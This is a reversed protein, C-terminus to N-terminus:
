KSCGAWCGQEAREKNKEELSTIAMNFGFLTDAINNFKPVTGAGITRLFNGLEQGQTKIEVVEAELEERALKEKRADEKAAALEAELAFTDGAFSGDMAGPVFGAECAQKLKNSIESEIQRERELEAEVATLKEQVKGLDDDVANSKPTPKNSKLQPLPIGKECLDLADVITKPRNPLPRAQVTYLKM